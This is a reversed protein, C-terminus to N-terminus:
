RNTLSNRKETAQEYIFAALEIDNHYGLFIPRRGVRIQVKWKHKKVDWSVGVYGSTNQSTIGRNRMNEVRSCNRLNEICNNTKCRDIHDIEDAPYECYIILWALRHAMCQNGLINIRLYGDKDKSGAQKGAFLANFSKSYGAEGRFRKKWHFLGTHRDYDLLRMVLERNINAM